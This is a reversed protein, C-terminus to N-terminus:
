LSHHVYNQRTEFATLADEVSDTVDFLPFFEVNTEIMCRELASSTADAEKALSKSLSKVKNRDFDITTIEKVPYVYRTQQGNVDFKYDSGQTKFETSKISGIRDLTSVMNRRLSNCSTEADIDISSGAKAKGIALSLAYKEDLISKVFDIITNNDQAYMREPTDDVTEDQAEPNASKRQHEKQFHVLNAKERLYSTMSALLTGLYNQYHFAEKLNM